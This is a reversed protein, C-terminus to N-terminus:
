IDTVLSVYRLLLASIVNLTQWEQTSTFVFSEWEDRFGDWQVRPGKSQLGLAAQQRAGTLQPQVGSYPVQPISHQRYPLFPYSAAPNMAWAVVPPPLDAKERVRALRRHYLLPLGLLVTDHLSRVLNLLSGRDTFPLNYVSQPKQHPELDPYVDSPQGYATYAREPSKYTTYAREPSQYAPVNHQPVYYPAGIPTPSAHWVPVNHQPIYYPAGIPRPTPPTPSAYRLSPTGQYESEPFSDPGVFHVSRERLQRREPLDSPFKKKKKNTSSFTPTRDFM